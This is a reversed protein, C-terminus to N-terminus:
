KRGNNNELFQKGIYESYAPPVAESINSLNEMWNIDMAHKFSEKITKLNHKKMYIKYSQKSDAGRGAVSIYSGDRTTGTRKKFLKLSVEFGEIEFARPRIVGLDFMMGNLILDKRIPAQCVNEIIFPIKTELLINRTRSILDPYKKGKFRAPASAKSFAQCPPSAWILDFRYVNMNYFRLKDFIDFHFFKFPYDPQEKIDVGEVEFGAKKLGVSAGGGGCFLDLAKM